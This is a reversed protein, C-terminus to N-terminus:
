VTFTEAKRSEMKMNEAQGGRGAAAAGAESSSGTSAVRMM